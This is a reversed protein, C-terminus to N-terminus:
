KKGRFDGRHPTSDSLMAPLSDFGLATTAQVGRETVRAGACRLGPGAAMSLDSASESASPLCVPLNWSLDTRFLAAGRMEDPSPVPSRPAALDNINGKDM